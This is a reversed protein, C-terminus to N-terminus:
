GPRASREARPQWLIAGEPCQKRSISDYARRLLAQQGKVAAQLGGVKGIAVTTTSARPCKEKPLQWALATNDPWVPCFSKKARAVGEPPTVM